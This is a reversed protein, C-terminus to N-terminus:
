AVLKLIASNDKEEQEMTDEFNPKYRICCWNIEPDDELEYHKKIAKIPDVIVMTTRNTNAKFVFDLVYM